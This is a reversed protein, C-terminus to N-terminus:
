KLFLKELLTYIYTGIYLYIEKHIYIYMYDHTCVYPGRLKFTKSHIEFITISKNDLTCLYIRLHIYTERHM